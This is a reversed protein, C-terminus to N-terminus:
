RTSWKMIYLSVVMGLGSCVNFKFGLGVRIKVMYLDLFLGTDKIGMSPEFSAVIFNRIPNNVDGGSLVGIQGLVLGLVEGLIGGLILGLIIFVVLRGVSSGKGMQLGKEQNGLKGL